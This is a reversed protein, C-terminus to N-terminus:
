DNPRNPLFDAGSGSLSKTSAQEQYHPQQMIRDAEAFLAAMEKGAEDPNWDQETLTQM